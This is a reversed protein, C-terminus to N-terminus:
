NEDSVAEVAKMFGEVMFETTFGGLVYKRANRGMRRLDSDGGLSASIKVVLDAVDLHSFLMGTTGEQLVHIEPNHSAIDDGTIVPVGYGMAHMISLGINAPYCFLRSSLMYPAINQEEYVSGVWQISDAIGLNSARRKLQQACANLKGIVLLQVSPHRRLIGPLADILLDLRNEEYIRGIYILNIKGLLNNREQFEILKMEDALWEARARQIARQDLSNPAVYIRKESWGADLFAKATVHDYFVLADAMRGVSDRIWKRIRSESKSYGHGWLITKVGNVRARVLAPVLSLYQVDWSLVLVDCKERTANGWQASHWMLRRKGFRFFRMPVFDAAIEDSKCNELDSSLAAFHVLLKTGYRKSLEAFFSIRYKPLAPQQVIIRVM